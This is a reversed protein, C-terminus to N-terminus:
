RAGHADGAKARGMLAIGCWPWLGQRGRPDPEPLRAAIRLLPRVRDLRAGERLMSRVELPTWDPAFFGLGEAPGFQMKANAASLEKAWTWQMQRVLGPSVLEFAWLAVCPTRALDGSLARVADAPLYLLLGETIALVKKSSAAVRDLFARRATADSLDVRARELACRPTEGALAAEKSDLIGPLDAEIWRLGPPLDLRYPRTDLGAALNLVVDVGDAVARRVYDDIAHTRVVLAWAHSRAFPLTRVIEEGRHPPPDYAFMGQQVDVILLASSM